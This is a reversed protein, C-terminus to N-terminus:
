KSAPAPQKLPDNPPAQGERKFTLGTIRVPTLPRDQADRPTKAIYQVVDLGEIAEGFITHHGNLHPTPAVTIFFQCDGTNPGANAMALLGPRDFKLSAAFEDKITFGADGSGTGSPDGGQIMFGPIVRHFTTGTYLPRTVMAGSGPDKWAKRGLQLDIFNKVTIPSEKEFLRLVIPGLTTTLTAYLGAPPAVLEPLTPVPEHKPPRPEQAVLSAALLTMALYKVLDKM